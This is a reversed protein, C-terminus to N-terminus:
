KQENLRKKSFAKKYQSPTMGELIRFTKMFYKEDTFGCSFAAQKISLDYSSLLTKSIDIRTKRIYQMLTIGITKHFLSSLYDPNYGFEFAVDSVTIQKYYNIKIWEM